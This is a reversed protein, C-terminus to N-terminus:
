LHVKVPNTMTITRFYVKNSIHSQNQRITVMVISGQTKM